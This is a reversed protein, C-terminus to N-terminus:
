SGNGYKRFLKEMRNELGQLRDVFKEETRELRNKLTEKVYNERIDIRSIKDALLHASELLQTQTKQLSDIIKTQTKNSILVEKVDAATSMQWGYLSGGAIVLIGIFPIFIRLLTSWISKREVSCKETTVWPEIKSEENM